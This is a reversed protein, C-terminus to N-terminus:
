TQCARPGIRKACCVPETTSGPSGISLFDLEREFAAAIRYKVGRADVQAVESRITRAPVSWDGGAGLLQLDLPSGPMVKSTSELLVGGRSINILSVQADAPLKVALPSGLEGNPRRPARRRDNARVWGPKCTRPGIGNSLTYVDAATLRRRIPVDRQSAIRSSMSEGRRDSGRRAAANLRDARARELYHEIQDRVTRPDCMPRMLASRRKLFNLVKSTEDPSPEEFDIFQPITIVQLHAASPVRKLHAMLAAEEAPALFTSTLVLDPIREGISRLAHDASTVIEFDAHVYARLLRELTAACTADPEIVLICDGGDTHVQSSM